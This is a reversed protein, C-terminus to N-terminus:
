SCFGSKWRDPTWCDFLQSVLSAAAICTETPMLGAACFGNAITTALLERWASDIWSCVKERKPRELMLNMGPSRASAIQAQMDAHWQKWLNNKLPYNWAVDAQESVSTAHPPVKLLVVNIEEAYRQVKDSWRGCFDDWLLLIPEQPSPRGAFHFKLFAM